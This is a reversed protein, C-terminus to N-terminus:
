AATHIAQVDAEPSMRVSHLHDVDVLRTPGNGLTFPAPWATPESTKGAMLATFDLPQALDPEPVAALLARTYPHVPRAFLQETPAVEVIRGACM